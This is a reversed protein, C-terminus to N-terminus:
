SYLQFWFGQAETPKPDPVDKGHKSWTKVQSSGEMTVAMPMAAPEKQLESTGM